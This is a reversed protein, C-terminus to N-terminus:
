VPAVVKYLAVLVPTSAGSAKLHTGALSSIRPLKATEGAPIEFLPYFTSSVEVGVEVTATAHSNRLIALCDDTMDGISLQEHSTGVLQTTQHLLESTTAVSETKNPISYSVSGAVLYETRIATRITNSM